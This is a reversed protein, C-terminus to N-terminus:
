LMPGGEGPQFSFALSLYLIAIKALCVLVLYDSWLLTLCEQTAKTKPYKMNCGNM